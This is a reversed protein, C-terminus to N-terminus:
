CGAALVALAKDARAAPVFLHGHHYGAVANCSIGAAALRASVAALFGVAELASHVTLTVRRSEFTFPLGAREAAEQEVILTLGEEERFTCILELGEPVHGDPLCVYVWTQPHLQPAMHRLLRDLDREAM